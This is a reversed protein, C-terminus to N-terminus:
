PAGGSCWYPAGDDERSGAALERATTRVVSGVQAFHRPRRASGSIIMKKLCDADMFSFGLDEDEGIIAVWFWRQRPELRRLWRGRRRGVIVFVIAASGGGEDEGDVVVIPLAERKSLLPLSSSLCGASRREKYIWIRHFLAPSWGGEEGDGAHARACCIWRRWYSGMVIAGAVGVWSSPSFPYRCCPRDACAVDRDEEGYPSIWGALLTVATGAIEEGWIWVWYYCAKAWPPGHLKLLKEDALVRFFTENEMLIREGDSNWRCCIHSLRFIQLRTLCCSIHDVAIWGGM